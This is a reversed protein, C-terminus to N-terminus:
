GTWYNFKKLLGLEYIRENYIGSQINKHHLPVLRSGPSCGLWPPSWPSLAPSSCGGLRCCDLSRGQWTTLLNQERFSKTIKLRKSDSHIRRNEGAKATM